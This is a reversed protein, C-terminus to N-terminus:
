ATCKSAMDFLVITLKSFEGAIGVGAVRELRCGKRRALFELDLNSAEARALQIVELRNHSRRM